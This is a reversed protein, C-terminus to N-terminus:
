GGSLQDECILGAILFCIVIVINIWHRKKM